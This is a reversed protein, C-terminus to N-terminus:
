PPTALQLRVRYCRFPVKLGGTLTGDDIWQGIGPGPWTFVPSPVATWVGRNFNTTSEIVYIQNTVCSFQLVMQGSANPSLSTIRLANTGPQYDDLVLSNTTYNVRFSGSGDLTALRGGNVVNDFLGSESGFEMLTFTNTAAPVFNSDLSLSLTGLFSVSNTVHIFDYTSGQQTGDLDFTLNAGALLNMNGDITLSSASNGPSFTGADFVNGVVTGSGTLLGYNTLVNGAGLNLLGMSGLNLTAGLYNDFANLGTGLDVSGIVTGYNEITDNGSTLTGDDVWQGMGPAPFTFVPSPVETWGGSRLDSTYEIAYTQNTVCSFQLVM